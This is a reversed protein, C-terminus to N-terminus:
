WVRLSSHDRERRLALRGFDVVLERLAFGLGGVCLVFAPWFWAPLSIRGGAGAFLLAGGVVVGTLGLTSEVCACAAGRPPGAPPAPRARRQRRQQLIWLDRVLGQALLTAAGALVLLGLRSSAPFWPHLLAAAAAAVVILAAEGRDRAIM